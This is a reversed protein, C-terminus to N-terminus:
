YLAIVDEALLMLLIGLAIMLLGAGFRMWKKNMEKWKKLSAVSTGLYALGVIVILPLVFIFNYLLLYFFTKMDFNRSLITTIALYPGGTCPLEVAAVFMGLAIVGPVTAKHAMVKIREAYRPNIGLIPGKKKNPWFADKVEILGLFIVLCGVLLGLSQELHISLRQIFLLLGLGALLYTIYVAAVYVIGVFLLRKKNEFLALLTSILLILVGIACPNISDVLATVVVTPFRLDAYFGDM